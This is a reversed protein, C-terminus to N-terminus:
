YPTSTSYASDAVLTGKNKLTSSNGAIIGSGEEMRWWGQLNNAYRGVNRYSLGEDYLDYPHDARGGYGPYSLDYISGLVNTNFLDQITTIDLATNWIAVEDILGPWPSNIAPSSESDNNSPSMGILMDVDRGEGQDYILYETSSATANTGTNLNLVGDIYLKATIGDWTGVIYHWGSARHHLKGEDFRNYGTFIQRGTGAGNTTKTTNTKVTFYARSNSFHFSWGGNRNASVITQQSGFIGGSTKTDGIAWSDMKVWAAVTIADEPKIGPNGVGTNFVRIYDGTGDFDMSYKNYLPSRFKRGGGTPGVNGDGDVNEGFKGTSEKLTLLEKSLNDKTDNFHSVHRSRDEAYEQLYKNYYNILINENINPNLQKFEEFTYEKPWTTPRIKFNKDSM